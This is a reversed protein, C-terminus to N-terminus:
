TSSGSGPRASLPQDEVVRCQSGACDSLEALRASMQALVAADTTAELNQLELPDARLDYLEREGTAYEIYVWDATRMAQFAPILPRTQARPAGAPAEPDPTASPDPAAEGPSTHGHELLFAQRWEDPAPPTEGLLRVLSRGDVFDPATAGALEAFTPALDINGALHELTRGARVGPGRVILPVRIDEEYATRKGPPLRHEGLHFGNDSTFFLYTNHLQGTAQLAGLLSAVLDEVALMSQLRKRYLEDIKHQQQEDLPPRNRVWQPKAAVDVENFSALRPAIVGPFTDAHRPAPNAPQHPARVSLYLFFPEEAAASATIFENAKRGMMDTFYDDATRGYPVLTGNDNLTYASEPSRSGRLVSYWEDWGPPIYTPQVSGPYENLYKGVLGTRYGADHLWTAVTSAEHGLDHFTQFGDNPPSNEFVQHNHAYQGRLISARSPCCLPLSAFFRSFSTGQDALLSRLRPLQEIARADLDDTLLLIISPRRGQSDPSVASGTSTAGSIAASDAPRAQPTAGQEPSAAPASIGQAACGALMTLVYVLSTVVSVWQM